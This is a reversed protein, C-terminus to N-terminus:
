GRTGWCFLGVGGVCCPGRWTYVTAVLDLVSHVIRNYEDNESSKMKSTAEGIIYIM